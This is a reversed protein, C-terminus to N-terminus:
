NASHCLYHFYVFKDQFDIRETSYAVNWPLMKPCKRKTEEIAIIYITNM